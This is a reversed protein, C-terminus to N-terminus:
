KSHQKKSPNSLSSIIMFIVGNAVRCNIPENGVEHRQQQHVVMSQRWWCWGQLRM